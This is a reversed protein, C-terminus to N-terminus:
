SAKGKRAEDFAKCRDCLAMYHRRHHEVGVPTGHPVVINPGSRVLGVLSPRDYKWGNKSAIKSREKETLGGWVGDHKTHLGENLCDALFPCPKHTKDGNCIAKARRTATSPGDAFWIDPDVDPQRCGATDDTNLTM